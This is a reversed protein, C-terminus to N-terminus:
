DNRQISLGYVIQYVPDCLLTMEGEKGTFTYYVIHDARTVACAGTEFLQMAADYDDYDCMVCFDVYHWLFAAFPSGSDLNLERMEVWKTLINFGAEEAEPLVKERPPPELAVFCVEGGGFPRTRLALSFRYSLISETDTIAEKRGDGEEFM